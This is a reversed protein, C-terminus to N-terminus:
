NLPQLMLEMETENVFDGDVNLEAHREGCKVFGLNEYLQIAGTNKSDVALKVKYTSDDRLDELAREVLARGLGRGRSGPAVYLGYVNAVHSAKEGKNRVVCVMGVVKGGEKVVFYKGTEFLKKWESEGMARVEEPTQGFARPSDKVAESRLAKLESWNEPKLEVIEFGGSEPSPERGARPESSRGPFKM